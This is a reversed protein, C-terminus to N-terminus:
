RGPRPAPSRRFDVQSLVLGAIVLGGGLVAAMTVPEALFLYGGVVSVVPYLNLMLGARTSPVRSLGYNWALMGLLNPGLAYLCLVVWGTTTLDQGAGLARWLAFAVMPITGIWMTMASVRLAGYRRVLPGVAVSYAGWMFAGLLVLAAGGLMSGDVAVGGGASLTIVGAFAVALGCVLPATLKQKLVLVSLLAIWLPETALLIGAFGAQVDRIGLTMPVNYGLIGVLGCALLLWRHRPTWRSLNLFPALPLYCLSCLAFRLVLSGLPDVALVLYRTAVPALGWMVVAVVIAGVAWGQRGERLVV